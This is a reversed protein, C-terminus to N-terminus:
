RSIEAEVEASSQAPRLGGAAGGAASAPAGRAPNRLRPSVQASGQASAPVSRASPLTREAAGAGGGAAPQAHLSAASKAIALPAAHSGPSGRPPERTSTGERGQQAQAQAQALQQRRGLDYPVGYIQQFREAPDVSGSSHVVSPAPSSRARTPSGHTPAEFDYPLGYVSFFADHPDRHTLPSTSAVSPTRTAARPGDPSSSAHPAHPAPHHHHFVPFAGLSEMHKRHAVAQAKTMSGLAVTLELHLLHLQTHTHPPPLAPRAHPAPM